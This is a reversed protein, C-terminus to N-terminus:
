NSANTTNHVDKVILSEEKVIKEKEAKHYNNWKKMLKKTQEVKTLKQQFTGEKLRKLEKHTIELTNRSFSSTLRGNMIDAVKLNVNEVM